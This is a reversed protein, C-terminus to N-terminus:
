AEATAGVTAAVRRVTIDGFSTRGRVEVSDQGAAPRETAELHNNVHGFRTNLDLWAAVGDLVGIDIPGAATQAVIAGHEVEGLRIEGNATKAVVSGGARDVTISGNASVVRLDGGVDGIWTDGNSNKVTAAGGVKGLRLAGTGTSVDARGAVASVSIEGAGTTAELADTEDLRIEGVGTKARCTGLRGTSRIPGAGVKADLQSGTPVDIRVDVSESGPGFVSSQLWKSPAKILLMGGAYEVRTEAAATVDAKKAPNSPRVEVATDNRDSAVVRLVGVGLEVTVSIPEPTDFVPM